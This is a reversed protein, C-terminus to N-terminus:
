DLNKLEIVSWRCTSMKKIFSKKRDEGDYRIVEMELNLMVNQEYAM